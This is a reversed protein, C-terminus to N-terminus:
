CMHLCPSTAEAVFILNFIQRRHPQHFNYVHNHTCLYLIIAEEALKLLYVEM